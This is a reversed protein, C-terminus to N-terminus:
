VHARGIELKKDNIEELIKDYIQKINELLQFYLENTDEKLVRNKNHLQKSIHYIATRLENERNQGIRKMITPDYVVKLNNYEKELAKIQSKYNDREAILKKKDLAKIKKFQNLSVEQNLGKIKIKKKINPSFTKNM